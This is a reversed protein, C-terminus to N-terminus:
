RAGVRDDVFIMAEGKTDFERLTGDPAQWVQVKSTSLDPRHVYGLRAAPFAHGTFAPQSTM